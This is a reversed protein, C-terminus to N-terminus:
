LTRRNRVRYSRPTFNQKTASWGNPLDESVAVVGPRVVTWEDFITWDGTGADYLDTRGIDVWNSHSYFDQAIHLADGFEDAADLPSPDAPDFEAIVGGADGIDKPANYLDNIAGASEQLRCNDFHDVGIHATTADIFAHEDNIEDIAGENLFALGQSTIDEHGLFGAPCAGAWIQTSCFAGADRVALVAGLAVAALAIASRRGAIRHRVTLLALSGRLLPRTTDM